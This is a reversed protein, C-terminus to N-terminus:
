FPISFILCEGNWSEKINKWKRPHLTLWTDSRIGRRWHQDSCRILVTHLELIGQEKATLLNIM